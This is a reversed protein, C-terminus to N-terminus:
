RHRRAVLLAGVVFGLVASILLALWLPATAEPVVFRVLTQRRNQLIFVVALALILLGVVQRPTFPFPSGHAHQHETVPVGKGGRRSTLGM